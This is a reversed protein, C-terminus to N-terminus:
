ASAMATNTKVCLLWPTNELSHGVRAETVSRISNTTTDSRIATGMSLHTKEGLRPAWRDPVPLPLSHVREKDSRHLQQNPSTPASLELMSRDKTRDAGTAIIETAIVESISHYPRGSVLANIETVIAESTSHYSRGSVLAITGETHDRVRPIKDDSEDSPKPSHPVRLAQSIIISPAQSPQCRQERTQPTPTRDVRLHPRSVQSSNETHAHVRNGFATHCQRCPCDTLPITNSYLFSVAM